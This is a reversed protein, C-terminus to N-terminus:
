KSNTGTILCYIVSWYADEENSTALWMFYSIILIACWLVWRLAPQLDKVKLAELIRHLELFPEKQEYEIQLNSEQSYMINMFVEDNWDSLLLYCNIGFVM